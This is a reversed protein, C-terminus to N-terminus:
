LQQNVLRQCMGAPPANWSIVRDAGGTQSPARAVGPYPGVGSLYPSVREKNAICLSLVKHDRYTGKIRMTNAVPNAFTQQSLDVTRHLCTIVHSVPSFTLMISLWQILSLPCQAQQWSSAFTERRDTMSGLWQVSSWAASTQRNLM